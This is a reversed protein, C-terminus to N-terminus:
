VPRPALYGLYWPPGCCGASWTVKDVSCGYAAAVGAAVQELRVYLRQFTCATLARVTGILEVQLVAAMLTATLLAAHRVVVYRGEDEFPVGLEELMLHAPKRVVMASMLQGGLWAGGGPAVSQEMLAVKLHPALKGLEYACALGASGAGVIVVDSEAFSDLDQFYRRSMARSVHRVLGIPEGKPEHAAASARAASLRVGRPCPRRRASVPRWTAALPCPHRQRRARSLARM